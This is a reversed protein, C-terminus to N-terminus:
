RPRGPERAELRRHQGLQRQDWNVNIRAINAADAASADYMANRVSADPSAYLEESFGKLFASALAGSPALAGLVAILAGALIASRGAIHAIRPTAPREIPEQPLVHM